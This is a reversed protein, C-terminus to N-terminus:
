VKRAFMEFASDFDVPEAQAAASRKTSVPALEAAARKVAPAPERRAPAAAPAAPPAVERRYREILDNVQDVTGQTVVQMYANKLYDPQRDVWEVVRDRIDDYDGVRTRLDNLQARESLVQITHAMPALYNQVMYQTLQQYETRRMLAEAKAVDPWDKLYTELAQKEDASYLEPEPQQTQQQPQAQAQQERILAAFRALREDEDMAPKPAPPPPPETKTEASTESAATETVPAEAVPASSNEGENATETQMEAPAPDVPTEEAPPAPPPDAVQGSGLKALEEFAKAFDDDATSVDVM